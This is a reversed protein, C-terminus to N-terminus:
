SAGAGMTSRPAPAAELSGVAFWYLLAGALSAIASIVLPAVFASTYQLLVGTVLPAVFGAMNSFTNQIGGITGVLAPRPAIDGPIAWIGSSAAMTAAFAVTACLIVVVQNSALILGVIGAGGLLLGLCIPAKRAVTLPVGSRLM